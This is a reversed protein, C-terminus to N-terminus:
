SEKTYRWQPVENITKMAAGTVPLLECCGLFTADDEITVGFRCAEPSAVGFIAMDSLCMASDKWHWLRRSNRLVVTNTVRDHEVLEGVHCGAGTGRFVVVALRPFRTLSIPRRKPSANKATAKKNSAAM